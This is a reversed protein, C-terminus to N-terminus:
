KIFISYFFSVTKSDVISEIQMEHSSNKNSSQGDGGSEEDFDHDVILGSNVNIENRVTQPSGDSIADNKATNMELLSENNPSLTM